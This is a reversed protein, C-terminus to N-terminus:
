PVISAYLNKLADQRELIELQVYRLCLVCGRLIAAIILEHINEYHVIHRYHQRGAKEEAANRQILNQM